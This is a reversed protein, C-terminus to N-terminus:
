LHFEGRVVERTATYEVLPVEAGEIVEPLSPHEIIVEFFLSRVTNADSVRRITAGEPLGMWEELLQTSVEIRGANIVSL